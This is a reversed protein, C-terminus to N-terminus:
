QKVVKRVIEGQETIVKVFYIGSNLNSIDIRNLIQSKHNSIQSLKKGVIDFVVIENVKLGGSLVILEGTTPNPYLTVCELKDKLNQNSLSGQNENEGSSGKYEPNEEDFETEICIDYFFCLIGRAMVSSLGSSADAIYLMQNIEEENLQAITRGSERIINKFTFLSVYNQHEMMEKESLNFMEPILYLTRFGEEISGLQCYTEALSYKARLTNIADYWDRIQTYDIISDTKLAFLAENSLAAMYESIASLVELYPVVTELLEEISVNGSFYGELVHDYGQAYFSLVMEDYLSSAMRYKELSFEGTKEGRERLFEPEVIIYDNCLTKGCTSAAANLTAVNNTRNVPEKSPDSYDYYYIIPLHQANLYFNYVARPMDGYLNDAGSNLAGQLYRIEGGAGVYIDNYNYSLVNCVFQLGTLLTGRQVQQLVQKSKTNTVRIGYYANEIKNRYIRNENMGPNNVLVGSSYPVDQLNITNEEVKYGTCNDLYIGSPSMNQIPYSIDLRSIQFSNKGELRVGMTNNRFDSRDISISYQKDSNLSEIARNFGKFVSRNPSDKCECDSSGSVVALKCSEDVTYGANETYIAKKRDTMTTINNEFKCGYIKIGSVAWMTFQNWLNENNTAFLNNNDVIFACNTFRGVNQIVQSSGSPPYSMYEVSRRNNKFTSNEAKIIGGHSNWDHNGNVDLEYTAIANKANEIVANNKLELTGQNQATQPLTGNGGVFIGYWMKSPTANTIKGGDVILKAGPKITIICNDAMKLTGKITLTAGNEVIINKCPSNNTSWTTNSNIIIDLCPPKTYEGTNRCNHRESGWEIKNADGATEWVYITKGSAAILENTGNNDIDSVCPSGGLPEETQLPFGLAKSGDMKLAYILGKGDNSTVGFVIELDPENDVDALIPTSYGPDLGNIYTESIVNGMNDWVKVVNQGLVVVELKGDNNLDGVAIETTYCTTPVPITQSNNPNNWGSLIQGNPTIAVVRGRNNNKDIAVSLIAKNGDNKLDCVIVSSKLDYSPLSFVPQSNGYNTGNYNWIYIGSASTTSNRYCGIIEKNGNGNLDAVALAGYTGGNTAINYLLQGTSSYIRIGGWEQFFVSEMTGDNNLDAILPSRYCRSSNSSPYSWALDPAGDGDNDQMKHCYVYNQGVGENRTNSIVEYVGDNDVDGIAPTCWTAANLKALGTFTTTNGDLNFLETGDHKLGILLGNEDDIKLSAFIEKKGDGNMDEVNVSGKISGSSNMEVPFGDKQGYSTWALFPDSLPGENGDQSVASIKYYYKTLEALGLDKYFAAPFTFTNLKRYNGVENGNADADSRYINYGSINQNALHTWFLHIETRDATFDITSIQIKPPTNMLDFSFSWIKGFQNEVQLIFDFSSLSSQITYAFPLINTETEYKDIDSYTTSNSTININPNNSSLIATLGTAQAKGKNFLPINLQASLGPDPPIGKGTYFRNGRILEPAFVEVNFADSYNGTSSTINLTFRVPSLENLLTELMYPDITFRFKTAPTSTAGANITGYNIQNAIILISSHSCSLTAVVNSAANTNNNKLTIGLEITEGADLQGDSNGISNASNGDYFTKDSIYINKNATVAQTTEYPKYNHATVTIDVNGSTNPTFTFTESGLSFVKKTAYGEDGKELCILAQEGAPLSTNLTVTISYQGNSNVSSSKSVSLTQPTNTWVPMEPDGLLHLRRRESINNNPAQQFAIGLNYPTTSSYLAVCFRNFQPDEGYLGYDSNGIFAVGGGNPNNIYHKGICDKNFTAPECGNTFFIQSYNGNFLNDFDDNTVPDSPFRITGMAKIGSHQLHYVIHFPKSPSSGGTNLCNIASGSSLEDNGQVCSLSSGNCDRSTYNYHIMDSCDHNQLLFWHSYTSLYQIALCQLRNSYSNSFVGTSNTYDLFGILYLFNNVYSGNTINTFKEYNIIKNVFIQAKAPNEVTARGLFFAYNYDTNDGGEGFINNNNANWTGNVTAYYLDTAFGSKQFIRGPIVNVDGGLLVFMGAGWKSYCEKLYNRIKEQLDSGFYNPEIEEVTKIITPIGKKTKWDALQQFTPRLQESTIIIYDPVLEITKTLSTARPSTDTDIRNLDNTYPIIQVDQNKFTEVDSKNKVQAKIFQETLEARTVSQKASQSNTSNFLTYNITYSYNKLYLEGNTPIYEIPYISVTVVHYGHTYGDSVIEVSKNPYPVTSNYVAYNPEVFPPAESGDLKRPTQTPYIFYNGFIHQSNTTTIQIDTIVANYPLVFTEFFVPLQPNGIEETFSCGEVSIEDYIGNQQFVINSQQLSTNDSVQAKITSCLSLLMLLVLLKLFFIHTNM